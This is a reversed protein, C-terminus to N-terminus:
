AGIIQIQMQNGRPDIAHHLAKFFAGKLDYIISSRHFNWVEEMIEIVSFAKLSGEFQL